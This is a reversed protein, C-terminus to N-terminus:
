MAASRGHRAARDADPRDRDRFPDRLLALNSAHEDHHRTQRSSALAVERLV